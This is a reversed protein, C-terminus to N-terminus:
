RTQEIDGDRTSYNSNPQIEDNMRRRRFAGDSVGLETGDVSGEGIGDALGENVGDEVGEDIGDM